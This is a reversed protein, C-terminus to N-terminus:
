GEKKQKANKAAKNTEKRKGVDYYQYPKIFEEFDEPLKGDNEEVLGAMAGNLTQASVTRKIIDGLGHEELTEFFGNEDCGGIKNYKTKDQLSYLFGGRSIRPSEADIMAQALEKRKEELIKNNKTTADKLRDKEDLLEKYEDILLFIDAM